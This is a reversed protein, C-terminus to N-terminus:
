GGRPAGEGKPGGSTRGSGRSGHVSRSRRAVPRRRKTCRVGADSGPNSDTKTRPGGGPFTAAWWALAPTLDDEYKAHKKLLAPANEVVFQLQSQLRAESPAAIQLAVEAGHKM